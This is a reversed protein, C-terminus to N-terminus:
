SILGRKSNLLPSVNSGNRLRRRPSDVTNVSNLRRFKGARAQSYVYATDVGLLKAVEEASLLQELSPNKRVEAQLEVRICRIQQILSLLEVEMAELRACTDLLHVEM